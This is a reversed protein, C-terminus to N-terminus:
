VVVAAFFVLCVPFETKFVAEMFTKTRFVLSIAMGLEIETDL